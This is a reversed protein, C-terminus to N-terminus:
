TTLGKGRGYHYFAKVLIPWAYYMHGGSKKSFTTVIASTVPNM